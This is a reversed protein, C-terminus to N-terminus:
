HLCYAELTETYAVPQNKPTEAKEILALMYQISFPYGSHKNIVFEGAKQAVIASPYPQLPIYAMVEELVAEDLAADTMGTPVAMEGYPLDCGELEHYQMFRTLLHLASRSDRIKLEYLGPAVIETSLNEDSLALQQIVEFMPRFIADSEPHLTTPVIENNEDKKFETQTSFILRMHDDALKLAQRLCQTDLEDAAAIFRFVTDFAAGLSKFFKLYYMNNLYANVNHAESSTTRGAFAAALDPKKPSMKSM